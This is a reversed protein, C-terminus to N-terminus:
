KILKLSHVPPKSHEPPLSHTHDAVFASLWSNGSANQSSCSGEEHRIVPLELFWDTGTTVEKNRAPSHLSYSSLSELM